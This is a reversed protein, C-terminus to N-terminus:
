GSRALVARALRGVSHSAPRHDDAPILAALVDDVLAPPLLDRVNGRFKAMVELATLPHDPNGRATRVRGIGRRGDRLQVTV